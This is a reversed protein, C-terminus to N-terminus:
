KCTPPRTCSKDDFGRGAGAEVPYVLTIPVPMPHPDDPCPTRFTTVWTLVTGTDYAIIGTAAPSLTDQKVVLAAKTFDHGLPAGTCAVHAAADKDDRLIISETVDVLSCGDPMKWATLLKASGLGLAAASCPDSASGGTGTGTGTGNGTGKSCAAVLLVCVM